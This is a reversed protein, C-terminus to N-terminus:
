FIMKSISVAKHHGTQTNWKVEPVTKQRDRKNFAIPLKNSIKTVSYLFIEQVQLLRTAYEFYNKRTFKFIKNM